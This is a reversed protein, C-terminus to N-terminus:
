SGSAMARSEAPGAPTEPSLLATAAPAEGFAVPWTLSVPATRYPEAWSGAGAAIISGM